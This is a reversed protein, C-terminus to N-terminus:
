WRNKIKNQLEFLKNMAEIPTLNGIDLDRIEDIIADDKVTDFLSMQTLDVEDLKSPKKKSVVGVQINRAIDAIDMASLEEVIVKARNLM